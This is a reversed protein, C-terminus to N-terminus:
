DADDAQRVYTLGRQEVCQGPGAHQRRVIREGGNLRVHANDPNGIWPQGGERPQIFRDLNDRGGDAEDIDGPQDAARRLAFAQAVLEEGMDPFGIRDALHHPDEGVRVDTVDVAIDRGLAVDLGDRGLQDEGVQLRQLLRHRPQGLFGLEALVGRLRAASAATV